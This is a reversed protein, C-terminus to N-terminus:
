QFVTTNELHYKEEFTLSIVPVFHKYKKNGKIAIKFSYLIIYVQM